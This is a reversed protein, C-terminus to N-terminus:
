GELLEKTKEELQQNVMGEYKKTLEQIEDRLRTADDEPLEGDRSLGDARRNADRRVNRISVRAAEAVEKARGV